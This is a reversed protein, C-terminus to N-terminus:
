GPLCDIKWQPFVVCRDDPTESGFALEYSQKVARLSSELHSKSRMV